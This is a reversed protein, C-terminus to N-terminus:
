SGPKVFVCFVEMCHRLLNKTDKHKAAYGSFMDM